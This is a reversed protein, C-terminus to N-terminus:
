WICSTCVKPSAGQVGVVEKTQLVICTLCCAYCMENFSINYIGDKQAVQKRLDDLEKQMRKLLDDTAENRSPTDMLLPQPPMYPPKSFLEQVREKQAKIKASKKDPKALKRYLVM